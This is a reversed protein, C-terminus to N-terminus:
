PQSRPDSQYMIRTPEASNRHSGGVIAVAITATIFSVAVTIAIGLFGDRHEQYWLEMRGLRTHLRMARDVGAFTVSVNATEDSLPTFKILRRYHLYRLPLEFKSMLLKRRLEIPIVSCDFGQLEGDKHWGSGDAFSHAALWLIQESTVAFEEDLSERFYHLGHLIRDEDKRSM